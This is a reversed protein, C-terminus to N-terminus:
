RPFQFNELISPDLTCLENQALDDCEGGFSRQLHLYTYLLTLVPTDYRSM